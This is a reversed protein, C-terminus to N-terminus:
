EETSEKWTMQSFSLSYTCRWQFCPKSTADLTTYEAAVHYQQERPFVTKFVEQNLTPAQCLKEKSACTMNDQIVPKATCWHQWEGASDSHRNVALIHEAREIYIHSMKKGWSPTLFLKSNLCLFATARLRQHRYLCRPGTRLIQAHQTPAALLYLNSETASHWSRGM